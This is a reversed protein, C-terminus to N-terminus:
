ARRSTVPLLKVKQRYIGEKRIDSELQKRAKKLLNSFQPELFSKDYDLHYESEDEGNYVARIRVLAYKNFLKLLDEELSEQESAIVCEELSRQDGLYREIIKTLVRELSYAQLDPIEWTLKKSLQKQPTLRYVGIAVGADSLKFIGSKTIKAAISTEERYSPKRAM